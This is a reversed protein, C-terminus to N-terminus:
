VKKNQTIGKFLEIEEILSYNNKRVKEKLSIIDHEISDLNTLAAGGLRLGTEIREPITIRAGLKRLRKGHNYDEVRCIVPLNKYHIHIKKIAKRMSARDSITIIVAKARKAGVARLIELDSVDGHFVPYGNTKAKKVVNLSSDIAVYNIQEDALMYAVVRGVRGFGSIIVHGNLDSVGKFEKTASDLSEDTNLKNEIKAGIMSLLPTIAMSVAVAMLMFEAIQPQIIHQSAALDFLIFAFEGGQALLLSAHITVGWNLRFVKCLIFIIVFKISILAFAALMVNQWNARIFDIDISMGVCLFFLSIFIGQFPKISDEIKNRYETEAILLGAIFAGMASSLGLYNTLYATGLVILLATTVYVEDTKVSAIISFFPRLFLRGLITVAIIVSLAKGGSLLISHIINDADNSLIPLVALLPVVAFDQMLLVSLSLRGVQTSQRGTDSLVQLVIATSSLALAAGMVLAVSQSFHFFKTLIFAIVSSTVLVQLGGFGFVHFRMSILREFTLELGIVFLLFVVGFEALQHVYEQEPVLDLTNILAGVVLYGLVPSIKIRHLLIVVLISAGLLVLVSPIYGFSDM